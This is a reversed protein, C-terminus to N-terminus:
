FRFMLAASAVDVDADVVESKIPYRDWEFRLGVPGLHTDIGAGYKYNWDNSSRNMAEVTSYVAGARAFVRLPGLPIGALLSADWAKIDVDGLTRGHIGSIKGYGLETGFITSWGGVFARWGTGNSDDFDSNHGNAWGYSGGIYTEASALRPAAALFLVTLIAVTSAVGATWSKM